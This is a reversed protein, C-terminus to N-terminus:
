DEEWRTTEPTARTKVNILAADGREAIRELPEMEEHRNIFKM